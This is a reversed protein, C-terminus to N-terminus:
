VVIKRGTASYEVPMLPFTLVLYMIKCSNKESEASQIAVPSAPQVAKM